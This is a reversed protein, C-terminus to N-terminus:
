RSRLSKYLDGPLNKGARRYIRDFANCGNKSVEDALKQYHGEPVFIGTGSVGIFDLIRLLQGQRDAVFDEYVVTLPHIGNHAFYEQTAAERLSSEKFLHLLANPDYKDRYFDTAEKKLEDPRSAM